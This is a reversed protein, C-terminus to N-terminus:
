AAPVSATSPKPCPLNRRFEPLEYCRIEAAPLVQSVSQHCCAPLLPWLRTRDCGGRDQRVDGGCPPLDATMPAKALRGRQLTFPAGSSGFEGKLPGQPPTDPGEVFSM